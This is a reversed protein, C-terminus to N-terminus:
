KLSAETIKESQVIEFELLEQWDWFILDTDLDKTSARSLEPLKFFLQTAPTADKYIGVEGSAEAREIQVRGCEAVDLRRTQQNRIDEDIISEADGLVHKQNIALFKAFDAVRNNSELGIQYNRITPGFTRKLYCRRREYNKVGKSGVLHFVFEDTGVSVQRIIGACLQRTVVDFFQFLKHCAEITFWVLFLTPKAFLSWLAGDKRYPNPNVFQRRIRMDFHDYREARDRWWNVLWKVVRLSFYEQSQAEDGFVRALRCALERTTSTTIQPLGIVLTHENRIDYHIDSFQSVEVSKPPEIGAYKAIAEIFKFFMPESKPHIVRTTPRVPKVFFPKGLFIVIMVGLILLAFFIGLQIYFESGSLRQLSIAGSYLHYLVSLVILLILTLYSVFVGIALVGNVATALDFTWHAPYEFKSKPLRPFIHKKFRKVKLKELERPSLNKEEMEIQQHMPIGVRSDGGMQLSSSRSAALNVDSGYAVPREKFRKKLTSTSISASSNSSSSEENQTKPKFKTHCRPCELVDDSVKAVVELQCRRCYLKQGLM